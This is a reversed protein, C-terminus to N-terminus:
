SSGSGCQNRPPANDASSEATGILFMNDAFLMNRVTPAKISMNLLTAFTKLTIQKDANWRKVDEVRVFGSAENWVDLGDMIDRFDKISAM